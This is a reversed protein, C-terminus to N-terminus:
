RSPASAAPADGIVVRLLEYRESTEVALADVLM